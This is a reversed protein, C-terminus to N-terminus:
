RLKSEIIKRVLASVKMDHRSALQILKDADAPTLRTSISTRPNDVRPRGRPRPATAANAM